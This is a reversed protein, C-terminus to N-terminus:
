PDSCTEFTFEHGGIRIHDGDALTASTQIRQGKVEVGNASRLDTILYSSGTDIIVAHHRSIEAGLVVIHNDTSRGIRTAAGQLPYLQGSGDRLQAVAASAAAATHRDVSVATAAATTKAAYKVDLPQQRLVKEHLERLAPSPDIGLEDALSMKLRQFADLADSQRDAIYYAAILQAWLPERYPHAGALEELESVVAEGRGCAIEAEAHAVHAQVKEETMATAFADVFAFDRLDELVPGRWQALAAALHRSAEEFKGAAAAHLAATKEAVFRGLDIDCDAVNIAYGPPVKALVAKGDVGVSNLLGRLNSMYSHISARAGSPPADEWAALLLSDVAVPRNRNMLLMALVARQKPTGLPVVVDDARMQLPGLLGFNLQKQTM